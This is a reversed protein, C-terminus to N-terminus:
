FQHNVSINVFVADQGGHIKAFHMQLAEQSEVKDGCLPCVVRPTASRRVPAPTNPLSRYFFSWNKIVKEDM